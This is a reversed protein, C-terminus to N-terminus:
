AAEGAVLAVITQVATEPKEGGDVLEAFLKPIRGLAGREDMQHWKGPVGIMVGLKSQAEGTWDFGTKWEFRVASGLTDDHPISVEFWQQGLYRIIDAKQLAKRGEPTEEEEDDSKRRRSKRARMKEAAELVADKSGLREELQCWFAARELAVRIWEGMAWSLIGVNRQMTRNCEGNCIKDIFPGLEAKAAPELAAVKLDLISLDMANVTMEIRATFLGPSERSRLTISHMQRLPQNPEQPLASISSTLSFPSFLELYPLEEEATMLVPHHSKIYLNEDSNIPPAPMPAAPQPPKGFPLLGIPNLAMKVLKQSATLQSLSDSARHQRQMLDVISKPNASALVRGSQQMLRIRENEKQATELDKKLQEIEKQLARKEENKTAHPDFARTRRPNTTMDEDPATERADAREAPPHRVAKTPFSPKEPRAAPKKLPSSPKPHSKERWRLPSSHIGRPPTSSVVDPVSPPLEPEPIEPEPEPQPISAAPLGLADPPPSRRLVKGLFPNAEEEDSGPPPLPRPNPRNPTRRAAAAMSGGARRVSRGTDPTPVADDTRGADSVLVSNALRLALLESPSQEVTEDELRQAFSRVEPSKQPSASRRRELVEPNHRALSAKTPSAFSPRKRRATTSQDPSPPTTSPADIGLSTRPSTRRRKPASEEM